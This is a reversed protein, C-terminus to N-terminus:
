TEENVRREWLIRRKTEIELLGPFFRYKGGWLLAKWWGPLVFRFHVWFIKISIQNNYDLYTWGKKM